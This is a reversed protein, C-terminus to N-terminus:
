LVMEPYIGQNWDEEFIEKFEEILINNLIISVERNQYLASYSLNHSGVIVAKGDKIIFKSHYRKHGSGYKVPIGNEALRELVWDNGEEYVGADVIVRVRVGREKADAFADIVETSSILYVEVDLSQEASNIFDLIEDGDYPSVIISPSFFFSHVYFGSIFSLIILLAVLAHKIEDKM